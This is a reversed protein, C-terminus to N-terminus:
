HKQIRFVEVERKGWDNVDIKGHITITDNETVNQGQWAYDEVEIKITGTKDTFMFEDHKLQSTIKGTLTVPADEYGNLAQAVTSIGAAQTTGTFGGQQIPATQQFGAFTATSALLTTLVLLKKM